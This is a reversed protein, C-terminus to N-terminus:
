LPVNFHLDPIAPRCMSAIMAQLQLHSTCGEAIRAQALAVQKMFDLQVDEALNVEAGNAKLIRFFAASIDSIAHGMGLLQQLSTLAQPVNGQHCAKVISVILAPHPQDCIRLVSEESVYGAGAHTAQLNNIAQRLDGEATYAIAKLGEPTYQVSELKAIREIQTYLAEPDVRSFRLIVCRSQIPEIVKSSTNCAM